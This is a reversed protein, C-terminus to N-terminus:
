IKSEREYRVMYWKHVPSRCASEESGFLTPSTIVQVDSAKCDRLHIMEVGSYPLLRPPPIQTTVLWFGGAEALAAPGVYRLAPNRVFESDRTVGPWQGIREAPAYFDMMSALQYTEAFVPKGQTRERLIEALREYGHTESLVRDHAPRIPFIGRSAHLILLGALLVNLGVGWRLKRWEQSVWPAMTAAAGFVYMASWNAEVKSSLSLFGCVILPVVASAIALTKVEPALGGTPASGPNRRAYARRRRWAPIMAFLCGGWLAVQSAYYGAYREFGQGVDDLWTRPRERKKEARDLELFPMALQYEPSEPKAKDPKPLVPMEHTEPRELALGHRLQFRVTIWDHQANWVFHPLCVLIAAVGGLYPWPSKLGRKGSRYTAGILAWLFVPGILLMTYKALIGCGTAIGATIWRREDQRLACAAEHLAVAWALMLGTDPTALFGFVLGLVNGYLLLLAVPVQHKKELGLAQFLKIGAVVTLLGTVLTGLRMAFHSGPFFRAMQGLLAVLPPHDFYGWALHRAWVAYYAEDQIVPLFWAGCVWFAFILGAIGWIGMLRSSIPTQANRADSM